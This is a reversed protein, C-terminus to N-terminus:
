LINSGTLLSSGGDTLKTIAYAAVM